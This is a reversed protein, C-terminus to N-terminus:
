SNYCHTWTEDRISVNVLLCQSKWEPFELLETSLRVRELKQNDDLLHPIWQFNVKRLSLDEPFVRKVTSQHIDLFCAIRKQSLYSYDALLARITNGHETSRPRGPRPMNELSPEGEKFRVKL